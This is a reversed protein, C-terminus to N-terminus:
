RGQPLFRWVGNEEVMRGVRAQLALHELHSGTEVLAFPWDVPKMAALNFYRMTVDLVTSPGHVEVVEQMKGLRERHHDLIFDIRGGYAGPDALPAGHGPLLLDVALPRLARLSGLYRGLPDPEIGPWFGINPTIAPLVQDGALLIRGEAAYFALHGDAHGPTHLARWRRGGMEVVSGEGIFEVKSPFPRVARATEAEQNSGEKSRLFALHMEELGCRRAHEVLVEDRDAARNMWIFDAIEWERASMLVPARGGSREQLWGALGFHDPHSHSLVIQRLDAFDLGLEAVAANWAEVARPINMGTDFATWGPGSPDRLLYCNVDGLATFPVPVQLQWIGPASNTLSM